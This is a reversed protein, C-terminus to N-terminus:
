VGLQDISHGEKLKVIAKKWRKTKGIVRGRWKRLKPNVRLTRVKEVRVNFLEEVANKIDIKTANLPVKFVYVNEKQLDTSKETVVPALIVEYPSKSM